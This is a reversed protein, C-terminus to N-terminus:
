ESKRIYTIWGRIIGKKVVIFVGLAIMAAAGISVWIPSHHGVSFYLVFKTADDDALGKSMIGFTNLIPIIVWAILSGLPVVSVVFSIAKYFGNKIKESYTLAYIYSLLIPLLVGNVNVWLYKNITFTGGVWSTHAHIISYETITAGASVAVILHGLEHFAIYLIMGIVFAPFIKVARRLRNKM